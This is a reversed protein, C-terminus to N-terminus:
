QVALSTIRIKTATDLTFTVPNIRTYLVPFYDQSTRVIQGESQGSAKSHTLIVDWNVGDLSGELTVQWYSLLGDKGEVQLSFHKPPINALLPSGKSPTGAVAVEIQESFSSLM